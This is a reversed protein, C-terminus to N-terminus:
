GFFEQATKAWMGCNNGKEWADVVLMRQSKSWTHLNSYTGARFKERLLYLGTSVEQAKAVLAAMEVEEQETLM